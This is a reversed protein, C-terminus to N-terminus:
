HFNNMRREENKMERFYAPAEAKVRSLVDDCEDYTLVIGTELHEAYMEEPSLDYVIGESEGHLKPTDSESEMSELLLCVLTDTIQKIM